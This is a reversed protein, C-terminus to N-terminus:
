GPGGTAAGAPGPPGPMGAPGPPGAVPARAVLVALNTQMTAVSVELAGLTAWREGAELAAVRRVLPELAGRLTSGISEALVEPRM